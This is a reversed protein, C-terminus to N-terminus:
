GLLLLAISCSSVSYGSGNANKGSRQITFSPYLCGRSGVFTANPKPLRHTNVHGVPQVGGFGGMVAYTGALVQSFVRYTFSTELTHWKV